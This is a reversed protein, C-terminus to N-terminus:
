YKDIKIKSEYISLRSLTEIVPIKSPVSAKKIMGVKQQATKTSLENNRQSSIKKAGAVEWQSAVSNTM